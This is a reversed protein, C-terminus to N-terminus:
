SAINSTNPIIPYIWLGLSWVGKNSKVPFILIVHNPKPFDAYQCLASYKSYSTNLCSLINKYGYKDHKQACIGWSYFLCLDAKEKPNGLWPRQQKGVTVYINQIFQTHDRYIISEEMPVWKPSVVGWNEIKGKM